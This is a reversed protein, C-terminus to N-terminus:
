FIFYYQLVECQELLKESESNKKLELLFNQYATTPMDAKDLVSAALLSIDTDANTEEEIDYNAWVVYPVQYRLQAEDVSM